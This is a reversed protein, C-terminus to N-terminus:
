RYASTGIQHLINLVETSEGREDPSFRRLCDTAGQDVRHKWCHTDKLFREIADAISRPDLPDFYLALDRCVYRSFDRESTLIPKGLALAELYVLGVTEVLTPMFLADASGLAPGVEDPKLRGLNTVMQRESELRKLLVTEARRRGGDLTLYFHVSDSLGRRRLETILAPLIAHNKHAYYTALFLLRVASGVRPMGAYVGPERNHRGRVHAPLTPAVVHIQNGDIRYQQILRDAVVPTQVIVAAARRVSLAFHRRQFLLRAREYWPLAGSLDPEPYVLYGQHFYIV